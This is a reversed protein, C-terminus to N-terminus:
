SPERLEAARKAMTDPGKETPEPEDTPPQYESVQQEQVNKVEDSMDEKEKKEFKKKLAKSARKKEKGLGPVQAFVAAIVCMTVMCCLVICTLVLLCSGFNCSTSIEFDENKAGVKRREVSIGEGMLIAVVKAMVSVSMTKM